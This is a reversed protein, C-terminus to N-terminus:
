DKLSLLKEELPKILEQVFKITIAGSPSHQALNVTLLQSNPFIQQMGKITPEIDILNDFQNYILTTPVRFNLNEQSLHTNFIDFATELYARTSMIKTIESQHKIVKDLEDESGYTLRLYLKLVQENHLILNVVSNLLRNKTGLKFALVKLFRYRRKLTIYNADYIGEFIFLHKPITTKQELMRIAIVGGYCFGVMLYNKLKLKKVLLNLFYAYNKASFSYKGMQNQNSIGPLHPLIVKFHQSLYLVLPKFRTIDSHFAPIFFLPKGSGAVFYEWGVGELKTEYRVIKPM